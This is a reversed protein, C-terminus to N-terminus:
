ILRVGTAELDKEVSEKVEWPTVIIDKKISISVGGGKYFQRCFSNALNFNQIKFHTINNRSFGHETVVFVDPDLEDCLLSLEDGKNTAM